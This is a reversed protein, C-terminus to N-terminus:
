SNQKVWSLCRSHAHLNNFFLCCAGLPPSVEALGVNAFWVKNGLRLVTEVEGLFIIKVLRALIGQDATTLHDMDYFGEM